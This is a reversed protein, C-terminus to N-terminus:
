RRKSIARSRLQEGALATLRLRLPSRRILERFEAPGAALARIPSLAISTEHSNVGYLMAAIGIADGHGAVRVPRADASVLAEGEVILRLGWVPRGQITLRTGRPIEVEEFLGALGELESWRLGEFLSMSGLQDARTSLPQFIEVLKSVWRPGQQIPESGIAEM